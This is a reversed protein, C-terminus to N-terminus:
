SGGRVRHVTPHLGSLIIRFRDTSTDSNVRLRSIRLPERLPLPALRHDFLFAV